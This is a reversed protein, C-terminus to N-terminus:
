GRVMRLRRSQSSRRIATSCLKNRCYYCCLSHVTCTICLCAFSRVLIKEADQLRLQLERIEQSRKKLEEDVKNVELQRNKMELASFIFLM